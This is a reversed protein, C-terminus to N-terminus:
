TGDEKRGKIEPSIRMARTLYLVWVLPMEGGCDLASAVLSFESSRM